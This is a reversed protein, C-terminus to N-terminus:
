DAGGRRLERILLISQQIGRIFGGSFGLLVAAYVIRMPIGMAPSTEGSQAISQVVGVSRYALFGMVSATLLEAAIGILKRTREGFLKLLANVRLMGSSRITYPLSIFVSWIWCFRCLEEAWTLSPLWPVNRAIVQLLEVCCLLVLLVILLAEEFHEDLWRLLKM